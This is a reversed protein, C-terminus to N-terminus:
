VYCRNYKWYLCYVYRDFPKDRIGVYTSSRYCRLNVKLTVNVSTRLSSWGLFILLFLLNQSFSFRIKKMKASVFKTPPFSFWMKPPFPSWEAIFGTYVMYTCPTTTTQVIWRRYVVEIGQPSIKEGTAYRYMYIM